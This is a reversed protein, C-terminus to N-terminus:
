KIPRLDIYGDDETERGVSPGFPYIEDGYMFMDGEQIITGTQIVEYTVGNVKKLKLDPIAGMEDHLWRVYDLAKKVEKAPDDKEGLRWLYKIANLRLYGRFEEPTSIAKMVDICEIGGRQYHPVPDRDKSM